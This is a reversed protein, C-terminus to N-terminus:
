KDQCYQDSEGVWESSVSPCVEQARPVRQLAAGKHIFLSRVQGGRACAAILAGYTVHDPKVPTAEAKMDSLVDFAREVAGARGCANILTNFIVRDPKVNQVHFSIQGHATLYGSELGCSLTPSLLSFAWISVIHRFIVLYLLLEMCTNWRCLSTPECASVVYKGAWWDFKVYQQFASLICHCLYASVFMILQSSYRQSWSGMSVLHKPCNVLELVDM